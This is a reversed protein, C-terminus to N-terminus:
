TRRGHDMMLIGVITLGCGIMLPTTFPEHFLLVGGLACMANQTANLLNVRNVSLRKLAAGVSFFALANASGAVLMSMWQDFTTGIMREPGLTMFSTIGLVVTGTTSFMVLTASISIPNSVLVHRIFVGNTGYAVGSLTAIICAMAVTSFDASDSVASTADSAGITVACIAVILIGMAILTRVSLPDNLFIRGLCAGTTIIAAFVVPVTVVLGGIGLAWQFMVNGGFQMLLGGGLLPLWLKRPPMAQQGRTARLAIIVWALLAAPSAKICSVWIAWALDNPESVHRLGLNALSYGVAAGLGLLTGMSFIGASEVPSTDADSAPPSVSESSKM